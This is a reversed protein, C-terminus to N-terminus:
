VKPLLWTRPPSPKAPRGSLAEMKAVGASSLPYPLTMLRDPCTMLASVLTHTLPICENLRLFPLLGLLSLLRFLVPELRLVAVRVVVPLQLVRRQRHGRAPVPLTRLLRTRAPGWARALAVARIVVMRLPPLSIGTRSKSPAARWIEERAEEMM